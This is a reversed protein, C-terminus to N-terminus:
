LRVVKKVRLKQLEDLRKQVAAKAKEVQKISEDPMILAQRRHEAAKIKHLQAMTKNCVEQVSDIKALEISQNLNENIEDWNVEDYQTKLGKEVNQWNIKNIEAMYQQKAKEKETATMGDGISKEVELWSLEL